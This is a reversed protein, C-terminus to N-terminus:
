ELALQQQWPIGAPPFAQVGVAERLEAIELLWQAYAPAGPSLEEWKGDFDDAVEHADLAGQDADVMQHLTRGAEHQLLDFNELVLPSLAFLRAHELCKVGAAVVAGTSDRVEYQFGGDKEVQRVHWHPLFPVSDGFEPALERAFTFM